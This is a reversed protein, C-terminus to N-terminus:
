MIRLGFGVTALVGLIGILLQLNFRWSHPDKTKVLFFKCSFELQTTPQSLSKNLNKSAPM